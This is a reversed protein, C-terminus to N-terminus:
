FGAQSVVPLLATKGSRTARKVAALMPAAAACFGFAFSRGRTTGFPGGACACVTWGKGADAEFAARRPAASATSDPAVLCFLRATFPGAHVPAKLLPSRVVSTKRWVKLVYGFRAFHTARSDQGLLVPPRRVPLRSRCEDEIALAVDCSPHHVREFVRALRDSSPRASCVPPVLRQRRTISYRVQYKADM